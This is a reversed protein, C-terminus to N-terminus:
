FSDGSDTEIMKETYKEVTETKPDRELHFGPRAVNSTHDVYASNLRCSFYKNGQKDEKLWAGGIEVWGNDENISIRYDPQKENKKFKNKTITFNKM